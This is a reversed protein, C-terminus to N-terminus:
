VHEISCSGLGTKWETPAVISEQVYQACSFIDRLGESINASSCDNQPARTPLNNSAHTTGAQLRPNWVTHCATLYRIITHV